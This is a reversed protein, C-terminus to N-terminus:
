LPLYSPLKLAWQLRHETVSPLWAAWNVGRAPDGAKVPGPLGATVCGQLSNQPKSRHGIAMFDTCKIHVSFNWTAIFVHFWKPFLWTSQISKRSHRLFQLSIDIFVTTKLGLYTVEQDRGWDVYSTLRLWSGWILVQVVSDSAVFIVDTTCEGWRTLCSSM